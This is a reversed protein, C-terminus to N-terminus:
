RSLAAASRPWIPSRGRTWPWSGRRGGATRFRLRRLAVYAAGVGTLLVAMGLGQYFYGGLGFVWAGFLAVCIAILLEGWRGLIKHVEPRILGTM